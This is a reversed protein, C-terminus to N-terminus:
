SQPHEKDNSSAYCRAAGALASKIEAFKKKRWTDDKAYRIARLRARLQTERAAPDNKQASTLYDAAFGSIIHSDPFVDVRDLIHRGDTENEMKENNEARHCVHELREKRRSSSHSTTVTPDM